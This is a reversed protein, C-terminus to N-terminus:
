KYRAVVSNRIRARESDSFDLKGLDAALLEQRSWQTRMLARKSHSNAGLILHGLEHALVAGLIQPLGFGTQVAADKAFFVWAYCAFEGAEGEVAFGFADAHQRLRKAM